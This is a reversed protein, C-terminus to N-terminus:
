LKKSIFVNICTENFTQHGKIKIEKYLVRDLGRFAKKKSFNNYTDNNYIVAMKFVFKNTKSSESVVTDM